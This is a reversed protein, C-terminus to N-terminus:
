APRIANPRDALRSTLSAIRVCYLAWCVAAPLTTVFNVLPIASLAALTAYATGIAKGPAAGTPLGRRTFENHLSTAVARVVRFTWYLGFLPILELWALAPAMTRSERACHALARHVVICLLIAPVFVILLFVPVLVLLYPQLSQPDLAPLNEM